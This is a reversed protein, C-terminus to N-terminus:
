CIVDFTRTTNHSVSVAIVCSGVHPLLHGSMVHPVERTTAVSINTTAGMKAKQTPNYLRAGETAPILFYQGDESYKGRMFFRRLWDQLSYGVPMLVAGAVEVDVVQTAPAHVDAVTTCVADKAFGERINTFIELLSFAREVQNVGVVWNERFNPTEQRCCSHKYQGVYLVRDMILIGRYM